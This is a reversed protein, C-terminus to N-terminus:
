DGNSEDGGASKEDKNLIGGTNTTKANGEGKQVTQVGLKKQIEEAEKIIENFREEIETEGLEELAQKRSQLLLSIRQAILQMQILEDKPLPDPFEISTWYRQTPKLAEFATLDFGPYEILKAYKLILRNIQKLGEGYTVWKNRTVEVLPQNKIHLAIGSTNSVALKKGLADEPMHALEFMATKVFELYNMAAGLDSQLELNQVKADKPLGSWIKRAGKELNNAKAGIIVTIPAAHYNIIDSVDTSKNNMEIQLPVIDQLDSIGLTDGALPLNKIRVVPIEGLANEREEIVKGDISEIIHEPTIDETYWSYKIMGARNTDEVYLPYIIRCRTM